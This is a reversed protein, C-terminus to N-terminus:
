GGPPSYAGDVESTVFHKTFHTLYHNNRELQRRRKWLDELVDVYDVYGDTEDIAVVEVRDANGGAAKFRDLISKLVGEWATTDQKMRKRVTAHIAGISAVYERILPKLDVTDGMAHLEALVRRKFKSDALSAVRIWPTATHRAPSDPSADVTASHWRVSDVPLGRHQVHNRLAEMVRYGLHAEYEEKRKEKLSKVEPSGDGYVERVHHEVQDLYLRCVTLLNVIRRSITHVRAVSESWTPESFLVNDLAADLLQREFERFNGLVYDLKEEIFLAHMLKAKAAKADRFEAETVEVFTKENIVRRTIEYKMTGGMRPRHCLQFALPGSTYSAKTRRAKKESGGIFDGRKCVM